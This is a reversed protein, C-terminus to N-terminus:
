DCASCDEGEQPNIGGPDYGTGACDQCDIEVLDSFLPLPELAVTTARAPPIPGPVPRHLSSPGRIGARHETQELQREEWQFSMGLGGLVRFTIRLEQTHEM